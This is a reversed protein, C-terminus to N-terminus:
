NWGQIWEEYCFEHFVDTLFFLDTDDLHAETDNVSSHINSEQNREVCITIIFILCHSESTFYMIKRKLFPSLPQGKGVTVKNWLINVM